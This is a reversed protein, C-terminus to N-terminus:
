LDTYNNTKPNFVECEGKNDLIHIVEQPYDNIVKQRTLKRILESGTATNKHLHYEEKSYEYLKM